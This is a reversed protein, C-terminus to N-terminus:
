PEILSTTEIWIFINSTLRRRSGDANILIDSIGAGARIHYGPYGPYLIDPINM